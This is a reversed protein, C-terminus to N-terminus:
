LLVLPCVHPRCSIRSVVLFWGIFVSLVSESVCEEEIRDVEYRCEDGKIRRVAEVQRFYWSWVIKVIMRASVVICTYM